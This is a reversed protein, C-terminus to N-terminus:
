RHAAVWAAAGAPDTFAPETLRLMAAVKLAALDVDAQAAPARPEYLPENISQRAPQRPNGRQSARTAASALAPEQDDFGREGARTTSSSGFTQAIPFRYRNTRGAGGKSPDCAVAGAAVVRARIARISVPKTGMRRAITESSPWADGHENAFDALVALFLREIPELTCDPDDFLVALYRHAAISM